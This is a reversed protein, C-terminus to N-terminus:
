TAKAKVLSHHNIHQQALTNLHQCVRVVNDGHNFIFICRRLAANKM